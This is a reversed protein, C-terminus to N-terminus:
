SGLTQNQDSELRQREAQEDMVERIRNNLKDIGTGDKACIPIIDKFTMPLEPIRDEPVGPYGDSVHFTYMFLTLVVAPSNNLYPPSLM